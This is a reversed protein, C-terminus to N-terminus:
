EPLAPWAYVSDTLPLCSLGTDAIMTCLLANPEDIWWHVFHGTDLKYVGTKVRLVQAQAVAYGLLLALVLAVVFSARHKM